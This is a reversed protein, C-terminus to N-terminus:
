HHVFRLKLNFVHHRVVYRRAILRRMTQRMAQVVGDALTQDHTQRVYVVVPCHGTSYRGGATRRRDRRKKSWGPRALQQQQQQLTNADIAYEPHNQQSTRRFSTFKTTKSTCKPNTPNLLALITLLTLTPILTLTLILTLKTKTIPHYLVECRPTLPTTPNQVHLCLRLVVYM